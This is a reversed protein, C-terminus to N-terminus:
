RGRGSPWVETPRDFVRRTRELDVLLRDRADRLQALAALESRLAALSRAARTALWATAAALLSLAVVPAILVPSM